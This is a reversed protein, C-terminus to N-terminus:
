NGGYSRRQRDAMMWNFKQEFTRELEEKDRRLAEEVQRVVDNAGAANIEIHPAYHIVIAGPTAAGQTTQSDLAWAPVNAYAPTGAAMMLGALGAAAKKVLGARQEIGIAAGESVHGGMEMFVRSPSHIGLVSKIEAVAAAGMSRMTEGVAQFRSTIGGIFGEVLDTGASMFSSVYGRVFDYGQQVAATITSWVAQLKPGIADWNRYIQYGATALTAAVGIAIGIPGTIFMLARGAIQLAAPLAAQFAGIIAGVGGTLRPLLSGVGGAIFSGGLSWVRSAGRAVAGGIRGLRGGRGRGKGPLDPIGSGMNMVYVKQVDRATKKGRLWGWAQAIGGGVSMAGGALFKGAMMAVSLAALGGVVMAIGKVVKPHEEALDKLGAIYDRMTKVASEGAVSGDKGQAKDTTTLAVGIEVALDHLAIGLSKAQERATQVRKAYDRDNSGPANVYSDKIEKMAGRGQRMALYYNVTQMDQLVRSLGFRELLRTVEEENGTKTADALARRFDIRDKVKGKKDKIEIVKGGAVKDIYEDVVELTAAVASIGRGSNMKKIVESQYDIGVDSFNKITVDASMKAFWNATNTAAEETSGAYKRAVQMAAGLEKVADIGHAGFSAMQAGLMPFYRAMDRLEFQGQKGAHNLIDLAEKMGDEGKIRMTNQLSFTLGALDQMTARTATATKALLPVYQKADPVAMGNAVLVQVGSMLDDHKQNMALAAQRITAGLEKEAAENLQGTIAVDRLSDQHGMFPQALRGASYVTAATGVISGYAEKRLNKGRERMDRGAASWQLSREHAALARGAAAPNALNLKLDRAQRTARALAAETKEAESRLEQGRSKAGELNNKFQDTVRDARALSDRLRDIEVRTATGSGEALKLKLRLKEALNGGQALKKGARDIEADAAKAREKVVKLGADLKQVGELAKRQVGISALSKKLDESEKRVGRLFGAVTGTASIILGVSLVKSSM